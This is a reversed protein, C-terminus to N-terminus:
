YSSKVTKKFMRKETKVPTVQIGKQLYEILIDVVKKHSSHGDERHDFHYSSAMYDNMGVRYTKDERLPLGAPTEMKISIVQGKSDAEVTYRIGSVKLDLPGINEYDFRILSRIETTSMEFIVIENEFPELAYIDKLRVTRPFFSVRIGGSNYFAMDLDLTQRIADTLLNGIENKDELTNELKVIVRDLLPNDLYRDIMQQIGPDIETVNKLEILRAAKRVLRKGKMVLEIKGLYRNKSGTQVILVGNTVAPQEIVTHSHGGIIVDLEGMEGALRKDKEYGQHTLAIFLDSKQKLYRYKRATEIEGEFRIGRVNGPNSDPIGTAPSVQLLGLVAMRIGGSTELMVYPEPQPFSGSEFFVNACVIRFRARSIYDALIEQGYDFEHNGLAQVDCGIQNLLQLIPEGRPEYRDVYPDGSFNDGASMFFVDATNKREQEILRAVKSFNAIQGHTDNIHFIIIRKEPQFPIKEVKKTVLTSDSCFGSLVAILLLVFFKFRDTGGTKLRNSRSKKM